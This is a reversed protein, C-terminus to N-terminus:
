IEGVIKGWELKWVAPAFANWMVILLAGNEKPDWGWFRGWSQDAESEATGVFSFLGSFFCFVCSQGDTEDHRSGNAVIALSGSVLDSEFWRASKAGGFVRNGPQDQHFFFKAACPHLRLQESEPSGAQQGVDLALQLIVDGAAVGGLV